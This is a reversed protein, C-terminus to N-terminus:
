FSYHHHYLLVALLTDLYDDLAFDRISDDENTLPKLRIQMAVLVARAMDDLEFAPVKTAIRNTEILM